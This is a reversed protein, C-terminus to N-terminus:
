QCVKNFNLKILITKVLEMLFVSQLDKYSSVDM